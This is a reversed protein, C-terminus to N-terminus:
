FDITEITIPIEPYGHKVMWVRAIGIVSATAEVPFKLHHELDGCHQELDEAPLLEQLTHTIQEIQRPLGLMELIQQAVDAPDLAAQGSVTSNSRPM